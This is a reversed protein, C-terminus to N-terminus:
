EMFPRATETCLMIVSVNLGGAYFLGLCHLPPRMQEGRGSSHTRPLTLQKRRWSHCFRPLPTKIMHIHAFTVM